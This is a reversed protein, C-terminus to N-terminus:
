NNKGFVEDMAQKFEPSMPESDESEEEEEKLENMILKATDYVMGIGYLYALFIAIHGMNFGVVLYLGIALPLLVMDMLIIIVINKVIQRVEQKM